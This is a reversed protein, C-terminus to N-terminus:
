QTANANGDGATPNPFKFEVLRWGAFSERKCPLDFDAQAVAM